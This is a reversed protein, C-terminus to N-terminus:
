RVSVDTIEETLAAERARRALSIFFRAFCGLVIVTIGLLVSVGAILSERMAPDDGSFCVPCAM